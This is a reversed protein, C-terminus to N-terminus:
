KLPELICSNLLVPTWSYWIDPLLIIITGLGRLLSLWSYTMYYLYWPYYHGTLPRSTLDIVQVVHFCILNPNAHTMYRPDPDPSLYSMHWISTDLYWTGIYIGLAPTLVSHWHWLDYILYLIDLTSTFVSHRHLYRTGSDYIMYWTCCTLHRTFISYLMM